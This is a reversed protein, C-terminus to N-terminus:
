MQASLDRNSNSAATELDPLSSAESMERGCDESLGGPVKPLRGVLIIIGM